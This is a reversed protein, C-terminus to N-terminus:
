RNGDGRGEKLVTMILRCVADAVFLKAEFRTLRPDAYVKNTATGYNSSVAIYVEGPISDGNKPDVTCLSGTVGIALDTAFRKRAKASMAAATEPSYVGYELLVTEPVGMAIKAENSYTIIGGKFIASAGATDTILSAILGSTCSEMCSISKQSSILKDTLQRYETHVKELLSNQSM